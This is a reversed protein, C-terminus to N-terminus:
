KIREMEATVMRRVLEQFSVRPSWGISRQIKSIEGRIEHTEIPGYSSNVDIYPQWDLGVCSFAENLFDRLTHTLGSAVVFDNAYEAQVIQYAAHAGDEAHSWDRKADINGLALSVKEGRSAEVAAHAIRRSVAWASRRESDQNFFIANSAHLDHAQRYFRTMEFAYVKAIGYPSSPRFSTTESQPALSYGFMESSGAQLFRIPRKTDRVIELLQAVAFGCVDGVSTPNAHSDGVRGPSVFNYVEDPEVADLIQRIADPDRLDGPHWTIGNVWGLNQQRHLLGHVAYSKDILLEAVYSGLQGTLGLILARKQKV